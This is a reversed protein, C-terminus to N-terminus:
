NIKVMGDFLDAAMKQALSPEWQNRTLITPHQATILGGDPLVNMVPWTSRYAHLGAERAFAGFAEDTYSVCEPYFWGEQTNSLEPRGCRVYTVMSVSDEHSVAAIAKLLDVTMEPGTHSAISQAFLFDVPGGTFSFDFDTNHVFKPKKRRIVQSWRLGAGFHMKCGQNLIKRNPEVGFYRGDLLYPIVMRGLRLSGCGVDLFRHYDRMGLDLLLQFQLAGIKDYWFPPGVWARPHDAGAGLGTGLEKQEAESLNSAYEARMSAPDSRRYVKPLSNM